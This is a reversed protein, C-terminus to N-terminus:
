FNQLESYFGFIYEIVGNCWKLYCGGGWEVGGGIGQVCECVMNFFDFGFKEVIDLM